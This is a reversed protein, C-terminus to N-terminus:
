KSNLSQFISYTLDTWQRRFYLAKAGSSLPTTSVETQILRRSLEAQGFSRRDKKSTNPISSAHAWPYKTASCWKLLDDKDNQVYGNKIVNNSLVSRKELYRRSSQTTSVGDMDISRNSSTTTIADTLTNEQM